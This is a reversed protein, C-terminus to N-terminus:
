GNLFEPKKIAWAQGAKFVVTWPSALFEGTFRDVYGGKVKRIDATGHLEDRVWIPSQWYRIHRKNEDDLGCAGHMRAGKPYGGAEVATTKSAYKALYGIPSHATKINSSGHPWWGGPKDPKPLFYGKPLWVVAHYHLAGRKQLEAVWVVRCAIKRRRCWERLNKTFQVIHRPEWGDVDEYTLTVLKKNWRRSGGICEFDILRASHQVATRMRKVRKMNQDILIRTDSTENNVLGLAGAAASDRTPPTATGQGKAEMRAIAQERKASDFPADLANLTDAFDRCRAQYTPTRFARTAYVPPPAMAASHSKIAHVAGEGAGAVCAADAPKTLNSRRLWLISRRSRKQGRRRM